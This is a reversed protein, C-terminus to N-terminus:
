GKATVGASMCSLFATCSALCMGELTGTLEAHRDIYDSSLGSMNCPKEAGQDRTYPCLNVLAVFDDALAVDLSSVTASM